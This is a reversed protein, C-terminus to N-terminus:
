AGAVASAGGVVRLGRYADPLGGTEKAGEAPKDEDPKDFFGQRKRDDPYGGLKAVRQRLEAAVKVNGEWFEAHLIACELATLWDIETWGASMPARGWATWWERTVAPWAIVRSRGTDPNMWKRTPLRPQPSPIVDIHVPPIAPKNTRARTSPDKPVPGRGAM